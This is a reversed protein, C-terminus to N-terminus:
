ASEPSGTRCPRSWPDRWRAAPGRRGRLVGLFQQHEVGFGPGFSARTKRSAESTLKLSMQAIVPMGDRGEIGAVGVQLHGTGAAHRQDGRRRPAPRSPRSRDALQHRDVGALAFQERRVLAEVRHRRIEVDLAVLDIVARWAWNRTTWPGCSCGLEGTQGDLLGRGAASGPCSEDRATGSARYGAWGCPQEDLARRRAGPELAQAGGGSRGAATTPM